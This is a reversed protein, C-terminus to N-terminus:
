EKYMFIKDTMLSDYFRILMFRDERSIKGNDELAMLYGMYFGRPNDTLAGVCMDNVIDTIKKLAEEM